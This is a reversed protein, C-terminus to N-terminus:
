IGELADLVLEKDSMHYKVGKIEQYDEHGKGAIVVIDGKQAFKIAYNVAERRDAIKIYKGCTNLIASEIDEIITMPDEFRPNDSTIITFDSLNGSITGMEFRRDRARNGGCGFLTVIRNPNYKKLTGLLSELSLANHAYDIIVTFDGTNECIEVRGPVRVKNLADLFADKSINFHRTIALACLSNYISFEGPMNMNVHFKEKGHVDYETCIQGNKISLNINDAFIDARKLGFSEVECLSDKIMNSANEDDSNIIALKSQKFLLSKCHMYDEFSDHENKGIHDPSLNTFVGIDFTIGATRNLKLAQSSVEMVVCKVGKEVMKSFYEQLLYSEPTTNLSPIIEDGVINYITGILGTKVGANALVERVIFSTTTKGKTGTIGITFLKEAPYSFYAASMNALALRTDETSIVTIEEPCDFHACNEQIVIAAAGKEIVQSIYDHGDSNAGVICVFCDGKSVKRSDYVLNQIQTDTNGKVLKYETKELLKGLTM